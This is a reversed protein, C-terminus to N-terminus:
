KVTEFYKKQKTLSFLEHGNDFYATYTIELDPSNEAVIRKLTSPMNQRRRCSTDFNYAYKTAWNVQFYTDIDAYITAPSLKHKLYNQVRHQIPEIM